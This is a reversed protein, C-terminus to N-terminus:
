VYKKEKLFQNIIEDYKDCYEEKEDKFIIGKPLFKNKDKGSLKDWSKKEVYRDKQLKLMEVAGDIGNKRGFHVPCQSIADVLSFGHHILSETIMKIMPRVEATIARCVFSAGASIALSCLDFENDINGYPTTSSISNKPTLPSFQGGTMGYISNDFVIVSIDINRRCGHIFHNGGIASLDGDGTLVIVHLDPNAFKIGTAFAIARGHTVHITNLNLFKTARGSCGIGSVVVIKSKEIGTQAIARVLSQLIIGHGCGPCWKHPLQDVRFFDELNKNM